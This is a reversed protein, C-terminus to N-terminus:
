GTQLYDNINLTQQLECKFTLLDRRHCRILTRKHEREENLLIKCCNLYTKSNRLYKNSVKFLLFNPILSLDDCKELFCLDLEAKRLKCDAKECKRLLRLPTTVMDDECLQRFVYCVLPTTVMDDDCLQRFVYCDLPTTVM